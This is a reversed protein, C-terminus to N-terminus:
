GSVRPSRRSRRWPTRGSARARSGARACRGGPAALGVDDVDIRRPRDHLHPQVGLLEAHPQVDVDAPLAVGLQPQLLPSVTYTVGRLTRTKTWSKWIQLLFSRCSDRALLPSRTETPPRLLRTAVVAREAADLGRQAPELEARHRGDHLVADDHLDLAGLLHPQLAGITMTSGLPARRGVVRRCASGDAPPGIKSMRAASRFVRLCALSERSLLTAHKESVDQLSPVFSRDVRRMIVTSGRVRQGDAGDSRSSSAVSGPPSRRGPAGDQLEVQSRDDRRQESVGDRSRRRLEDLAQVRAGVDCTARTAVGSLRRRSAADAAVADRSGIAGVARMMTTTPHPSCTTPPPPRARSPARADVAIRSGFRVGAMAADHAGRGGPVVRADVRGRSVVSVRFGAGGVPCVPRERVEIPLDCVHSRLRDPLSPQGARHDGTQDDRPGADREGAARRAAAVDVITQARELGLDLLQLALARLGGFLRRDALRLHLVDDVLGELLLLHEGAPLVAEEQLRRAAVELQLQAAVRLRVRRKKGSSSPSVPM